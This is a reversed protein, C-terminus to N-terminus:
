IKITQGEYIADNPLTITVVDKIEFKKFNLQADRELTYEVNYFTNPVIRNSLSLIGILNNRKNEPV